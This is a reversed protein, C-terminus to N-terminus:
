AMRWMGRALAMTAVVPLGEPIAAIALAIASEIMLYPDRGAFVGVIGILTVVGVTFQVLQGSLRALQEELPSAEPVAEEVLRTIKGLESKMGTAVVVGIGHGRVTATGKFIMCARDALPANADVLDAAKSVPVSEGTLAAEDTALNSATVLRLDATAVDGGELLVVDGPVLQEGPLMATKGARRVRTTVNGLSRLAEMSRLAKWETFFGIATNIVLVILVASGELWEGFLFAVVAAASLLWVVPSQFQNLLMRLISVPRHERLRNVGYVALRRRAEEPSLGSGIDTDLQAVVQAAPMAHFNHDKDLSGPASPATFRFRSLKRFFQTM